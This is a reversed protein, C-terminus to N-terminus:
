AFRQMLAAVPYVDSALFSSRTNCGDDRDDFGASSEFDRNAVIKARDQRAQRVERDIPDGLESGVSPQCSLLFGGFDVTSQEPRVREIM